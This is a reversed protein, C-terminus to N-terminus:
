AAVDMALQGDEHEVTSEAPREYKCDRSTDVPLTPAVRASGSLAGDTLRYWHLGDARWCEITHGQKRLAAVRSHAIVRLDYLELHSHPEGDSLLELVRQNHTM